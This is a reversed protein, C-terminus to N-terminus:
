RLCWMLYLVVEKDSSPWPRYVATCTAPVEGGGGRGRACLLRLVIRTPVPVNFLACMIAFGVLIRCGRVETRYAQRHAVNNLTEVTNKKAGVNHLPPLPPTGVVIKHGYLANLECAPDRDNQLARTKRGRVTIHRLTSWEVM